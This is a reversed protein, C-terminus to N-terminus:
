GLRQGGAQGGQRPDPLGPAVRGPGPLRHALGPPRRRARIHGAQEVRNRRLPRPQQQRLALDDRSGAPHFLAAEARVILGAVQPLRLIQHQGPHQDGLVAGGLCECQQPPEVRCGFGLAAGAADDLDGHQLRQRQRGRALLVRRHVGQGPREHEGARLTIDPHEGVPPPRHARQQGPKSRPGAPPGPRQGRRGAQSGPGPAAPMQRCPHRASAGPSLGSSSHGPRASCSVARSSPIRTSSAAPMGFGRM